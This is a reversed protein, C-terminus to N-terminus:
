VKAGTLRFTPVPHPQPGESIAPAHLAEAPITAALRMRWRM